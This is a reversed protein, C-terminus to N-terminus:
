ESEWTVIAKRNKIDLWVSVHEFERTYIYGDLKAPGKPAGLPKKYEPLAKMWVSSECIGRRTEASYGDKIYLYSYKEACVLFLAINFDIIEQSGYNPDVNELRVEDVGESVATEGISLTMAIMKGMRAAKQATDIGKAVIDPNPSLFNELYSGDLKDMYELGGNEFHHARIINAFMLKNPGLAERTQAIMTHYGEITAQKKGDPLQRLMYGKMLAKVNGDIFLGDIYPSECVKKANSVWWERLAPNTTDYAKIRDRVMSPQGDKDVLFWNTISDIQENFTYGGYHCIVNRYFLVKAKPNLAKIRKAIEITGADTSGFSKSGTTKELTILPFESLFQLEKNSFVDAKRIHMYLPLTEWSFEPLISRTVASLAASESVDRRKWLCLDLDNKLSSRFNINTENAVSASLTFPAEGAMGEFFFLNAQNNKSAVPLTRMTEGISLVLSDNTFEFMVQSMRRLIETFRKRAQDNFEPSAKMQKITADVDLVWTGNLANHVEAWGTASIAIVTMSILIYTKITRM